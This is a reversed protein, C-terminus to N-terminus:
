ATTVSADAVLTVWGTATVQSGTVSVVASAQSDGHATATLTVDGAFLTANRLSVLADTAAPDSAVATLTVAGTTTITADEVIVRQATLELSAGTETLDIQGTVIIQSGVVEIRAMLQPAAIRLIALLTKVLLAYNSARTDDSTTAATPGDANDPSSGKGSVQVEDDESVVDVEHHQGAVDVEIADRGRPFSRLDVTIRNAGDGTVVVRRVGDASIRHAVGDATFVLEDSAASYALTGEAIAVTLTLTAVGGQRAWQAVPAAPELDSAAAPAPEPDAAPQSEASPAPTPEPEPTASPQPTVPQPESTAPEPAPESKAPAPEAAPESKAPEPKPPEAQAPEETEDEGGTLAMTGRVPGADAPWQEPVAFTVGPQLVEAMLGTATHGLGLAHGIEHRLVTALDMRDWGWGGAVPDILIERGTTEGLRTGALDALAATIGDTDAGTARWDALASEFAADLDAATLLRVDRAAVAPALLPQPEATPEPDASPSPEPDPTTDSGPASVEVEGTGGEALPCSITAAEGNTGGVAKCQSTSLAKALAELAAQLQKNAEEQANRIKRAQAAKAANVRQNRYQQAAVQRAARQQATLQEIIASAQKDRYPEVEPEAAARLVIVTRPQEPQAAPQGAPAAAPPLPAAAAEEAQPLAVLLGAIMALSVLTCIPHRLAAFFGELALTWRKGTM